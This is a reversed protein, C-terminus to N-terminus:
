VVNLRTDEANVKIEPVKKAAKVTGSFIDVIIIIIYALAIFIMVSDILCIYKLKMRKYGEEKRQMKWRQTQYQYKKNKKTIIIM